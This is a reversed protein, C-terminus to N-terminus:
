LVGFPIVSSSYEFFNFSFSFQGLGISLLEPGISVKIMPKVNFFCPSDMLRLRALKKALGFINTWGVVIFVDSISFYLYGAWRLFFARDMDVTFESRLSPCKIAPTYQVGAGPPNACLAVNKWLRVLAPWSKIVLWTCVSLLTRNLNVIKRFFVSNM